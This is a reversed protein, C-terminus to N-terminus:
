PGAGTGGSGTTTPNTSTSSAVQGGRLRDVEEKLGAFLQNLIDTQRQSRSAGFSRLLALLGLLSGAGGAGMLATIENPTMGELKELM